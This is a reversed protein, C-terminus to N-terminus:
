DASMAIQFHGGSADCTLTPVAPLLEEHFKQFENVAREPPQFSAAGNTTYPRPDDEARTAARAALPGDILYVLISYESTQRAITLGASLEIGQTCQRSGKSYEPNQGMPAYRRQWM